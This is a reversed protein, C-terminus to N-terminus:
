LMPPLLMASPYARPQYLPRRRGESGGELRVQGLAVAVDSIPGSAAM